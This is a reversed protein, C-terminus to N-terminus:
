VKANSASRNSVGGMDALALLSGIKASLEDYEKKASELNAHCQNSVPVRSMLTIKGNEIEFEPKAYVVYFKHETSRIM